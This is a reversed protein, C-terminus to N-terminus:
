SGARAACYDSRTGFEMLLFIRLRKKHARCARSYKRCLHHIKGDRSGAGRSMDAASKQERRHESRYRRIEHHAHDQAHLTQQETVTTQEREAAVQEVHADHRAEEDIRQQFFSSPVM